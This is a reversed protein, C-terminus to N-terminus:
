ATYRCFSDGVRSLGPTSIEPTLASGARDAWNGMPTFLIRVRNTWAQAELMVTTM